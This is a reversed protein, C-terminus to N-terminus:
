DFRRTRSTPPRPRAMDIDSPVMTGMVAVAMFLLGATKGVSLRLHRIEHEIRELSEKMPPEDDLVPSYVHELFAIGWADAMQITHRMQPLNGARWSNVTRAQVGFKAALEKVSYRKCWEAILEGVPHPGCSTNILDLSKM